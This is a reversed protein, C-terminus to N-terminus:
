LEDDGTVRAAEPYFIEEEAAMHARLATCIKDTIKRRLQPDSAEEYWAFWGLVVRHDEMLLNLVDPPTKKGSALAAGLSIPEGMGRDAIMTRMDRGETASRAATNIRRSYDTAAGDREAPEGRLGPVPHPGETELRYERGNKEANQRVVEET